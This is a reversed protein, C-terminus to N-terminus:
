KCYKSSKKRRVTLGCTRKYFRHFGELRRSARRLARGNCMNMRRYGGKSRAIQAIEISTLGVGVLSAPGLKKLMNWATSRTLGLSALRAALLAGGSRVIAGGGGMVMPVAAMNSQYNQPVGQSRGGGGLFNGAINVGANLLNGWDFGINSDSLGANFNDGVSDNSGFIDDFFGMNYGGIGISRPQVTPAFEAKLAPLLSALSTGGTWPALGIGSITKLGQVLGEVFGTSTRTTTIPSITGTPVYRDLEVNYVKDYAYGPPPPGLTQQLVADLIVAGGVAAPSRASM